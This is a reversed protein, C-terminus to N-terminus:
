PVDRNTGGEEPGAIRREYKPRRYRGLYSRVTGIAPGLGPLADPGTVNGAFGHRVPSGQRTTDRLYPTQPSPGHFTVTGRTKKLRRFRANTAQLRIPTCAVFPLGRSGAFLAPVCSSGHREARILLSGTLATVPSRLDHRVECRGQIERVDRADRPLRAAQGPRWSVGPVCRPRGGGVRVAVRARMVRATHGLASLFFWEASKPM